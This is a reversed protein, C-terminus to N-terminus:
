DVFREDPIYGGTHVSGESFAAAHRRRMRDLYKKDTEHLSVKRAVSADAAAQLKAKLREQEELAEGHPMFPGHYPEGTKINEHKMVIPKPTTNFGIPAGQRARMKKMEEPTWQDGRVAGRLKDLEPDAAHSTGPAGFAAVGWEHIELGCNDALAREASVGKSGRWGPLLVLTDAELCIFASYAAFARRIPFPREQSFEAPNYVRHGQARLQAAVKHFLPYNSEPYGTMPGSLYIIHHKM